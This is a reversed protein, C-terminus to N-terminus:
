NFLKRAGRKAESLRSAAQEISELSSNKNKVLSAADHLARKFASAQGEELSNLDVGNCSELLQKLKLAEAAKETEEDAYSLLRELAWNDNNATSMVKIGEYPIGQREFQALLDVTEQKSMDQIIMFEKQYERHLIPLDDEMEFLRKVSVHLGDDGVIRIEINHDAGILQYQDARKQDLGYFLIKKVFSNYCENWYAYQM